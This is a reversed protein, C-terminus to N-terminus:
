AYRTRRFKKKRDHRKGKKQASAPKNAMLALVCHSPSLAGEPQQIACVLKMHEAIPVAVERNTDSSENQHCSRKGPQLQLPPVNKLFIPPQDDFEIANSETGRRQEGLIQM